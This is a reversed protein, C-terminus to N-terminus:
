QCIKKKYFEACTEPPSSAPTTMTTSAANLILRQTSDFLDEFKNKKEDKEESRDIKMQTFFDVQRNISTALDQFALGSDTGNPPGSSGPNGQPPLGPPINALICSSHRQRAWSQLESDQSDIACELTPILEKEACWLFHVINKCHDFAKEVGQTSAQETDFTSILSNTEVLLDAPNNIESDIFALAIFPPLIIFNANKFEQTSVTATTVDSAVTITKLTTYTPTPISLLNTIRQSCCIGGAQVNIVHAHPKCHYM